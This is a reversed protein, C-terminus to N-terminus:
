IELVGDKTEARPTCTLRAAPRLVQALLFWERHWM